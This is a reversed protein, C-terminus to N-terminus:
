DASRVSIRASLAELRTVLRSGVIRWLWKRPQDLLIAVIFFTMVIGGMALLTLVGHTAQYVDANFQKFWPMVPEASHFLYVAFCSSAVYNIINSQRIHLNSFLLLLAVAEIIVLPNCYNIAVMGALPLGSQIYYYITLTISMGLYLLTWRRIGSTDCYLRLYRALMYLGIFSIASYGGHINGVGRIWGWVTQFLFFCIIVNRVAAKGTNECFYNMLPALLYLCLYSPVFWMGPTAGFMCALDKITLTNFPPPYALLKIMLAFLGIAFVQFLFNCAGRLSAKIGFWGSILVFVNVAVLGLMEIWTRTVSNVLEEVGSPRTAPGGLSLFDAHIILVMIMALIRLIEMNTQRPGRTISTIQAKAETM